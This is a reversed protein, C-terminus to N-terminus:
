DITVPMRTPEKGPATFLVRAGDDVVIKVGEGGEVEDKENFRMKTPHGQAIVRGDDGVNMLEPGDPALVRSGELKAVVKEEVRLSADQHRELVNKEGTAANTVTLKMPVIPFRPGAAPAPAPASATPASQL